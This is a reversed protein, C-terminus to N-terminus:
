KSANTSSIIERGREGTYHQIYQIFLKGATFCSFLTNEAQERARIPSLRQRDTHVHTQITCTHTHTVEQRHTNKIKFTICQM